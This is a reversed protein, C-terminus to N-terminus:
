LGTHPSNIDPTPKKLRTVLSYPGPGWVGMPAWRNNPPALHYSPGGSKGKPPAMARIGGGQSRWQENMYGQNGSPGRIVWHAGATMRPGRTEQGRTALPAGPYGPPGKSLLHGGGPRFGPYTGAALFHCWSVCHRMQGTAINAVLLPTVEYM